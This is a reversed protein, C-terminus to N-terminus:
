AGGQADSRWVAFGLVAVAIAAAGVAIIQAM